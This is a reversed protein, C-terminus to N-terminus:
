RSLKKAFTQLPTEPFVVQYSGRVAEDSLLEVVRWHHDGYIIHGPKLGVLSIGPSRRNVILLAGPVTVIDQRSLERTEVYKFTRGTLEQLRIPAELSDAPFYYVSGSGDKKLFETLPRVSAIDALRPLLVGTLVLLALIGFLFRAWPVRKELARYLPFLVIFIFPALPALLYNMFGWPALVLLYAALLFGGIVPFIGQWTKYQEWRFLMWGAQAMGALLLLKVMLPAQGVNQMIVNLSLGAYKASYGSMISRIFVYYGVIFIGAAAAFVFAMKRREPDRLGCFLSGAGLALMVAIGTEKSFVGGVILMFSLLLLKWSSVSFARYLFYISGLSFWYVLREQVSLYLFLNFFPTFCFFLLPYFWVAETDKLDEGWV